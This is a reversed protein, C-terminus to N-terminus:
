RNRTLVITSEVASGGIVSTTFQAPPAASAMVVPARQHGVRPEVNQVPRAPTHGRDALRRERDAAARVAVKGDGTSFDRSCVRLDIAVAVTVHQAVPRRSVSREDVALGRRFAQEDLTVANPEPATGGDLEHEELLRFGM